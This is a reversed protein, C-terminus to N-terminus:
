AHSDVKEPVTKDKRLREKLRGYWSLSEYWVEYNENQAKWVEWDSDSM